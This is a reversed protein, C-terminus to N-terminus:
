PVLEAAEAIKVLAPLEADRLDEPFIIEYFATQEQVRYVCTVFTMGELSPHKYEISVGQGLRCSGGQSVRQFKPDSALMERWLAESQEAVSAKSQEAMVAVSLVEERDSVTRVLKVLGPSNQPVVRFGEPYHARMKGNASTATQTLADAQGPGRRLLLVLAVLAVILGVVLYWRNQKSFAADIGTM